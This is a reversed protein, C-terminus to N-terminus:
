RTYFDMIRGAIRDCRGPRQAPDFSLMELILARHADDLEESLRFAPQSPDAHAAACAFSGSESETLAPFEGTLILHYILALSFVDSAPGIYARMAQRTCEDPASLYQSLEPSLLPIASPEPLIASPEPLNHRPLAGSIDTLRIRSVTEDVDVCFMDPSISGLIFGEDHLLQAAFLIETFRADLIFPSDELRNLQHLQLAAKPLDATVCPAPARCILTMPSVTPCIRNWQTSHRCLDRVRNLEQAHDTLPARAESTGDDPLAPLMHVTMWQGDSELPFRMDTCRHPDPSTSMADLLCKATPRLAPDPSLMSRILQAISKDSVRIRLPIGSCLAQAASMGCTQPYQGTLLHHFLCGASFIDDDPRAGCGPYEIARYMEPSMCPSAFRNEAHLDEDTFRGYVPAGIMGAAAKGHRIVSLTDACLAGHVFGLSHLQELQALVTRIVLIKQEDTLIRCAKDFRMAGRRPLPTVTFIHDGEARIFRPITLNGDDRYRSHFAQDLRCIRQVIRNVGDADLDHWQPNDSVPGSKRRAPLPLRHFLSFM